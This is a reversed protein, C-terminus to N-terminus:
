PSAPPGKSNDVKGRLLILKEVKDRVHVDYTKPRAKKEGAIRAAYRADFYKCHENKCFVWLLGTYSDHTGCAPCRMCM